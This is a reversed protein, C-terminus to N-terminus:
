SALVSSYYARMKEGFKDNSFLEARKLGKSVLEKTAGMAEKIGRVGDQVSYPDVKVAADGAVEDMIEIDSTVVPIGATFAETVPIGFGEELSPFFLVDCANYIENVAQDSLDNFTISNGVPEGIRVLAYEEPLEAMVDNVYSLNKRRVGNTVSLVLKRDPPLGYKNRLSERSDLPKIATNMPPHIVSISGEFGYRVLCGRIHESNAIINHYRSYKDYHRRTLRRRAPSLSYLDTQTVAVPDDNISVIDSKDQRIPNISQNIYHLVGANGEVRQLLDQGDAFSYRPFAYNAYRNILGTGEFRGKVFQGPIDTSEESSSALHILNSTRGTSEHTIIATKCTAKPYASDNIIYIREFSNLM